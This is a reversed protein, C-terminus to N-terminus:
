TEQTTGQRKRSARKKKPEMEKKKFTKLKKEARMRDEIAEHQRKLSLCALFASFDDAQNVEHWPEFDGKEKGLRLIYRSSIYDDNEETFAELYAATQYLYDTRLHNSSKWDILSLEDQFLGSCCLPNDCSDVYALGDMTGAYNHEQSYVVKETKVWRVNHSKMWAHAALGCNIAREDVPKVENMEEVIGGNFEIATRISNEIWQHAMKGVDSADELHEKHANKASDILQVFDPWDQSLTDVGRDHEIRPTLSFIKQAMMKCAWPMLYTSKDLIGCTSTVGDVEQLGEPTERYYCHAPKGNKKSCFRLTVEGNYFLLPPGLELNSPNEMKMVRYVRGM